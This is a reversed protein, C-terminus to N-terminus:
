QFHVKVIVELGNGHEEASKYEHGTGEHNHSFGDLNQKVKLEDVIFTRARKAARLAAGVPHATFFM